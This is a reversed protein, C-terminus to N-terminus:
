PDAIIEEQIFLAEPFDNDVPVRGYSFGFNPGIPDVDVSPGICRTLQGTQDQFFFFNTKKSCTKPLTEAHRPWALMM